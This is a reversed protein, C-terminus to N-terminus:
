SAPAAGPGNAPAAGPASAPAAVAAPAPPTAFVAVYVAGPTAQAADKVALDSSTTEGILAVRGRASDAAVFRGMDAGSGGWYTAYVLAGGPDFAALLADSAGGARRTQQAGQTVPLDDSGTTGAAYLLGAADLAPGFFHDAGSGGFRAAMALRGDPAIRAVWGDAGRGASFAGPTTPFDRSRTGGAILFAGARTCIWWPPRTRFSVRM